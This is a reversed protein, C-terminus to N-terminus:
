SDLRIRSGCGPTLLSPSRKRTRARATVAEPPTRTFALELTAASTRLSADPVHVRV